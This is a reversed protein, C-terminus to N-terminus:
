KAEALRARVMEPISIKNICVLLDGSSASKECIWEPALEQLLRLQEEVERRDVM